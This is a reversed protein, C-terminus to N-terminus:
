KENEKQAAEKKARRQWYRKNSARVRDKNKARWERMYRAQVEKAMKEINEM